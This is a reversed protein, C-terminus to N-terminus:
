VILEADGHESPGDMHVLYNVICFISTKHRFPIAAATRSNKFINCFLKANRWGGVAGATPFSGTAARAPGQDAIPRTLM